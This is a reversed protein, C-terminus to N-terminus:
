LTSGASSPLEPSSNENSHYAMMSANHRQFYYSFRHHLFASLVEIGLPPATGPTPGFQLALVAPRPKPALLAVSSGDALVVPLPGHALLTTPRADALVARPPRLALHLSHRPPDMQSCPLILDIYANAQTLADSYM